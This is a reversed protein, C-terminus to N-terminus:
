GSTTRVTLLGGVNKQENEPIAFQVQTALMCAGPSMHVTHTHPATTCMAYKCTSSTFYYM